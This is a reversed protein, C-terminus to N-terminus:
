IILLKDTVHTNVRRFMNIGAMTNLHVTCPELRIQGHKRVGDQGEQTFCLLMMCKPEECYIACVYTGSLVYMLPQAGDSTRLFV